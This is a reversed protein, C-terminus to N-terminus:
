IKPLQKVCRSLHAELARMYRHGLEPRFSALDSCGKAWNCARCALVINHLHGEGGDKRPRLHDVTSDTAPSGAPVVKPCYMCKWGFRRGAERLAEEAGRLVKGNGVKYVPTGNQDRRVYKIKNYPLEDQLPHAAVIKGLSSM